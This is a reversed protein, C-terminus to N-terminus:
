KEKKNMAKKAAKLCIFSLVLPFLVSFGFTGAYISYVIVGIFFGIILSEIYNQKM